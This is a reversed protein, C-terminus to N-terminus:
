FTTMVFYAARVCDIEYKMCENMGDDGQQCIREGNKGGSVVLFLLFIM